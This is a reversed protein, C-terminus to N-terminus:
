PNPDENPVEEEQELMMEEPIMDEKVMNDEEAQSALAQTEQQEGIAVNPSFIEYGRLDVVDNIFQSLGIGSTHPALMAALPSNFVGVLNQLEQAKQAFHRAGVPRLVGMATIDDKTISKFQQVGLDDDIIRIVDGTPFNRHATELMDNLLQEMFVEFQTIKEQFIRGAANELAQVEFATKEGPTRIGMAERPAGAYLEMKAELQEIYQLTTYVDGFQQAMEVVDGNEDIHILENPAWDFHEVDGVVKKPPMVKLDLANSVMNTYHDILYQMGVLNDLPGMSWLNNPRLRWGVHRIAPSGSYTPIPINRVVVSRDMVTIMRGLQLEGTDSDHYDGYFELVEVTDSGYYEQISGFGDVQYQSAKVWDENSYSIAAQHLRERRDLIKEWETEGVHTQSMKKLAGVTTLSRVVKFSNDFDNALPNFVIDLPDIRVAKPGVFDTVKEEERTSYRTEFSPMAFANGKDIYDYLLRSATQRFGGERTKNEMYALITEAKDREASEKTFAQWTLWKDNPFLSSLYNSHLNDRLQTLKPTTTKHTWPLNSNSTTSTDTAFLYKDVEAWEEVKGSRQENYKSWLHTVWAAPAEPKLLGKLEAVADTKNM